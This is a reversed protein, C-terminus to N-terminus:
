QDHGEDQGQQHDRRAPASVPMSEPAALSDNTGAMLSRSNHMNLASIMDLHGESMGYMSRLHPSITTGCSGLPFNMFHLGSPMSTTWMPEAQAQGLGGQNNSNTVMWFNGAAPPPIQFESPGPRQKKSRDSTSSEPDAADMWQQHHLEPKSILVQHPHNPRFGILYPNETQVGANPLLIRRQVDDWHHSAAAATAASAAAKLPAVLSAASSSRLSASLTAFNAPITGTGTAAIVAPEAQRLLWEITEGDSKHGLERTLQFVRAACLAPMRIRRGRGDVKTHRDKTSARKPAQKKTEQWSGVSNNTITTTAAAATASTGAPTNSTTSSSLALSADMSRGLYCGNSTSCTDEEKKELLLQLPLNPRRIGENGPTSFDSFEPRM